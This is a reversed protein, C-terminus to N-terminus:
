QSNGWNVFGKEREAEHESTHYATFQRYIAAHEPRFARHCVLVSRVGDGVVVLFGKLLGHVHPLHPPVPFYGELAM